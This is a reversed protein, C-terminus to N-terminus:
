ILRDFKTISTAKISDVINIYHKMEKQDSYGICKMVINLTIVLCLTNVIISRIGTDTGVHKAV